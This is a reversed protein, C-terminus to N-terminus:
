AKAARVTLSLIRTGSKRFAELEEEALVDSLDSDPIEIRREVPTTLEVFGAQDVISLYESKKLAGGVCGVYFEAASRISDPLDGEIVIDSVCFHGGPKLVRHIEAFARNKDPVLNLVCNSIVVDVSADPLPLKEIEGQHFEVNSTGLKDLNRRAKAVMEPTFDIGIVRGADGVIRRAVFVDNGAGSGLDLITMGPQIGAHETPIGCGLGLDADAMYGEVGTYSKEVEAYTSAATRKGCCCSDGRAIEGYKERVLERTKEPETNM